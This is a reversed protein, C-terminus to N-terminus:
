KEHLQLTTVLIKINFVIRYTSVTPITYFMLYIRQFHLSYKINCQLFIITDTTTTM